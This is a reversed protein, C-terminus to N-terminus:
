ILSDTKPVYGYTYNFVISSFADGLVQIACRCLHMKSLYFFLSKTNAWQNMKNWSVKLSMKLELNLIFASTDLTNENM